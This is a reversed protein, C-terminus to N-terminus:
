LLNTNFVLYDLSLWKVEQLCEALGHIESSIFLKESVTFSEGSVLSYLFIDRFLMKPFLKSCFPSKM